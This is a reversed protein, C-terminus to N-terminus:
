IRSRRGIERIARLVDAKMRKVTPGDPGVIIQRRPLRGAGTDHFYAIDRISAQGGEHRSPGGFGVRIGAVIPKFLNGPAGISLANLLTGTDRLISVNKAGGRTTTKAGRGGRKARRSKGPGRRGKITSAALPKWGGRSMKVFRRKAFTLYRAGWQKFMDAIPGRQHKLGANLFRQFREFGRLDFMASSKAM